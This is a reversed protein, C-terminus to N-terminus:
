NNFIITHEEYGMQKVQTFLVFMNQQALINFNALSRNSSRGLTCNNQERKTIEGWKVDWDVVITLNLHDTLRVM